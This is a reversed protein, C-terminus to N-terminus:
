RKSYNIHFPPNDNAKYPYNFMNRLAAGNNHYKVSGDVSLMNTGVGWGFHYGFSNSGVGSDNM